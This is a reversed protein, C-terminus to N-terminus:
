LCPPPREFAASSSRREFRCANLDPLIGGLDQTPWGEDQLLPPLEESVHDMLSFAARRFWGWRWPVVQLFLSSIHDCLIAIFTMSAAAVLPRCLAPILASAQM